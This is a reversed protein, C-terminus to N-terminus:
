NHVIMNWGVHSNDAFLVVRKHLYVITRCTDNESFFLSRSVVSEIQQVMVFVMAALHPISSLAFYIETMEFRDYDEKLVAALVDTAINSCLKTM